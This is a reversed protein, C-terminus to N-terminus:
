SVRKIRLNDITGAFLGDGRARFGIGTSTAGATLRESKNGVTTHIAGPTTGGLIASVGGGAVGVTLINFEVLYDVGAVVSSVRSLDNAAGNGACTAVGSGVTWNSNATWGAGDFSGDVVINRPSLLAALRPQM